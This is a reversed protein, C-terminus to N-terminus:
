ILACAGFRRVCFHLFKEHCVNEVDGVFNLYLEASRFHRKCSRASSMWCDTRTSEWWGTWCLRSHTTPLPSWSSSRRTTSCPRGWSLELEAFYDVFRNFLPRSLNEVNKGHHSADQLAYLLTFHFLKASNQKFVAFGFTRRRGNHVTNKIVRKLWSLIFNKQVHGYHFLLNRLVRFCSRV